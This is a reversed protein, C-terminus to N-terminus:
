LRLMLLLLHMIERERVNERYAFYKKLNLVSSGRLLTHKFFPNKLYYYYTHFCASSLEMGVAGLKM